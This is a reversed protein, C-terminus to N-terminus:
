IIKILLNKLKSNVEFQKVLGRFSVVNKVELTTNNEIM